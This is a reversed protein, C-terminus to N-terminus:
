SGDAHTSLNFFERPAVSYFEDANLGLMMFWLLMRQSRHANSACVMRSEDLQTMAFKHTIAPRPRAAADEKLKIKEKFLSPLATVVVPIGRAYAEPVVSDHVIMHDPHGYLGTADHTFIAAVPGQRVRDVEAWIKQNLDKVLPLGGDPYMMYYQNEIGMCDAAKRAEGLRCEIKTKGPCSGPFIMGKGGDSVVMWRVVRTPDKELYSGVKALLTLEDDPHAFIAFIEGPGFEPLDPIDAANEPMSAIERMAHSKFGMARAESASFSAASIGICVAWLFSAGLEGMM